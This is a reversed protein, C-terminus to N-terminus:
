HAQYSTLVARYKEVSDEPARGIAKQQWKCATDFDGFEAYAAAATLLLGVKKSGLLRMATVASEVARAGNRYRGEPCTAFIEALGWHAEGFGPNLRIAENYDAIAKAYKGKWKWASGRNSYASADTGDLRIAENWDAIAQDGAGKLMWAMARNVHSEAHGPELLNM